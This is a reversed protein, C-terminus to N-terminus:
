IVAEQPLTEIPPISYVPSPCLSKARKQTQIEDRKQRSQSKVLDETAENFIFSIGVEPYSQAIHSLTHLTKTNNDPM